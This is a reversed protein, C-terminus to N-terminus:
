GKVLTVVRTTKVEAKLKAVVLRNPDDGCEWKVNFSEQRPLCQAVTANNIDYVVEYYWCMGSSFGGVEGRWFKLYKGEETMFVYNDM